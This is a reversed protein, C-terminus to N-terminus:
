ANKARRKIWQFVLLLFIFFLCISEYFIKRFNFLEHENINNIIYYNVIWFFIIIISIIINRKKKENDKINMMSLLLQLGVHWYIIITFFTTSLSLILTVYLVREIFGYPFRLSDSSSINPFTFTDINDFGVLGLPIIFSIILLFLGSSVVIVYDKWDFRWRNQFVKNFIVLNTIGVYVLTSVAISTYTPMTNIHMIAIKVFDWEFKDSGFSKLLLTFIIPLEILFIVELAFLISKSNLLIGYSTFLLFIFIMLSISSEPTLFRKLTFVFAILTLLGSIFAIVSLIFLLPYSLWKSLYPDIIEPFSKGPFQSFFNTYGYILIFGFLASIIIAWIAGQDKTSLLIKPVISIYHYFM